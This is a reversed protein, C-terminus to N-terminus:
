LETELKRARKEAPTLERKWSNNYPIFSDSQEAEQKSISGDVYAALPKFSEPKLKQLVLLSANMATKVAIPVGGGLEAWHGSLWLNKVPTEQHAIKAQMNAKGPKAGMLSGNRNGTYRWHTIPTAIDCYVIHANLDIKLRQNVRTILTDAFETKFKHYAEGRVLKGNGDVETKWKGDQFFGAYCYITVTGFGEPALSPDRFSPALLSLACKTPDGSNHDTRSVDDRSLFIMEDGFGLQEVPCDLGLSVTVASSYLEANRLKDLKKKPVLGKPLMHEYLTEVDCAAIIHQCTIAHATGKYNVVIGKARKNEVSVSQVPCNYHVENGLHEIVYVLWEPFVLSGGEPPSQFDNYYAWGIPVLASLLEEESCFMKLLEPDKFYNRLGKLTGDPGTFRIHRIFPLAFQLLALNLKIKSWWNMTAPSRSFNPSISFSKGLQRAHKFFRVIGKEEHPFKVILEAKLDDPKNTLLYNYSNGVYRRIKTQIPSVPHDAGIFNFVRTVLGHPGCQNLWHIASDFRFDKRRFGALYGGPRSDMEFVGVKLGARSLIAAATLGSIGAGIVAM